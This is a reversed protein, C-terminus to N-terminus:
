IIALKFVQTDVQSSYDTIGSISNYAYYNGTSLTLTNVRLSDSRTQTFTFRSSIDALQFVMTDQLVICRYKDGDSLASYASYLAQLKASYTGTSLSTALVKPSLGNLTSEVSTGDSLKINDANTPNVQM